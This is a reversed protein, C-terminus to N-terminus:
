RFGAATQSQTALSSISACIRDVSTNQGLSRYVDLSHMRLWGAKTLPTKPILYGSREGRDTVRCKNGSLESLISARPQRSEHPRITSHPFSFYNGRPFESDLLIASEFYAVNGDGDIIPQAALSRKWRLNLITFRRNAPQTRIGGLMFDITFLDTNPPM